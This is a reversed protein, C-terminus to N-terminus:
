GGNKAPRPRAFTLLEGSAPFRPAEGRLVRQVDRLVTRTVKVDAEHTLGAIHPTLLVNDFHTFDLDAAQPPEHRRVDLAAGAVRKESLADHIAQEDLVGGRSTNVLFATPKMWALEARGILNATEPTLPLHLTVVDSQAFLAKWSVLHIGNEVVALDGEAIRPDFALLKLGFAKLRRAVLEGIRGLGVIGVTQGSLESGTFRSRDWGRAVTHIHAQVLQRCLVIIAGVTLEAVSIANAEPAYVVEIGRDYAAALDINDLGVGLRGIVRLEPGLRILDDSVVTQNRVVLARADAIERRLRGPDGHLTRDYTVQSNHNLEALGDEWLFESIIIRTTM